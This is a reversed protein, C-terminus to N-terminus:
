LLPARAIWSVSAQLALAPAVSFYSANCCIFIFMSVLNAAGSALEPKAEAVGRVVIWVL